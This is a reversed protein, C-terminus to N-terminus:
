GKRGYYEDVDSGEVDISFKNTDDNWNPEWDGNVRDRTRLVKLELLFRKLYKEAEERTHSYNNSNYYKNDSSDYNDSFSNVGESENAVLNYVCYYDNGDTLREVIVFEEKKEKEIEYQNILEKIKDNSQSQILEIEKKLEELTKTM